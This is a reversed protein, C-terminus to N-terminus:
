ESMYWQDAQFMVWQRFSWDWLGETPTNKLNKKLLIPQPPMGVTGINFLNEMNITVIEKGLRIHEDTGPVTQLWDEIVQYLHKIYDPPEEGEAGDSNYWQSWPVGSFANGWNPRLNDQTARMGLDVNNGYGWAGVLLENTGGLTRFLNREISKLESKVGVANWYSAVLESNKLWAEEPVSLQMHIFLTEGDPRVRFGDPGKTLGMEDLLANAKEPDYEAYYEGMWPEYLISSPHMTAQRPTAKGFYVLKNIEERNIALSMARRFRIDNFIERLVPDPHTLNFGYRYENGRAYEMLVVRYGGADENDKYLPYSLLKGWGFNTFEGAIAKLDQVELNEALVRIQGNIYPLQNGAVDVKWYYPNRRFYRNGVADASDLIWPEVTPLNTDRVAGMGGTHGGRPDRAQLAKWWSDFGETQALEDAKPNHKIHFQQLYHKPRFGRNARESAIMDVVGPYPVAFEFRIEHDGVKVFKVVEGGPAWAKPITPTVEQDLLMDEYWFMFDDTTFPAGDSWKMGKRLYVTLTKLDDSLKFDKAINPIITQYDPAIRFLTQIRMETVDWGGGVPSTAPGRLEGGYRGIEHLPEIVLPEGSIREEVPPLKGAKVLEDLEPAEHFETITKGTHQEYEAVTNYNEIAGEGALAPGSSLTACLMMISLLCITKKM